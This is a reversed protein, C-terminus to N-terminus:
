REPCKFQPSARRNWRSCRRFRSGTVMALGGGCTEEGRRYDTEEGRRYDTEEGRRYVITPKRVAVITTARHNATRSM